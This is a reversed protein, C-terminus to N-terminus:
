VIYTNVIKSVVMLINEHKLLFGFHVLLSTRLSILKQHMSPGTKLNFHRELKNAMIVTELYMTDYLSKFLDQENKM